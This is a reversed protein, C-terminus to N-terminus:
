GSYAHASECSMSKLIRNVSLGKQKLFTDRAHRFKVDSLVRWYKTPAPHLLSTHQTNKEVNFEIQEKILEALERRAEEFTSGQAVIDFELCHAVCFEGDKYDLCNLRFESEYYVKKDESLWRKIKGFIRLM